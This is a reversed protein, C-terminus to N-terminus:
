AAHPPQVAEAVAATAPAALAPAAAQGGEADPKAALRAVHPPQRWAFGDFGGCKDCVARWESLANGCTGCVWAPDPDALSARVLWARAASADGHEAEELEAMMRCVRASPRGGAAQGLHRRAEGWLRAELAATALAILSEEHGPHCDALRQTAKVRELSGDAGRAKWYVPLLDPHPARSWAREIVPVAKRGKGEEVLFRAHGAAAPGLAPDAAYAHRAHRAAEERDGRALADLGM